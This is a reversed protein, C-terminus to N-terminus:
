EASPDADRDDAAREQVHDDEIVRVVAQRAVTVNTGPAIDIQVTEDGVATVTGYFGSGLMVQTGVQVSAQTKALRKQQNRAPRVVLVWFVLVILVLPVLSQWGNV